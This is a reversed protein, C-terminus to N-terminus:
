SFLLKKLRRDHIGDSKHDLQSKPELVSINGKSHVLSVQCIGCFTDFCMVPFNANLVICICVKLFDLSGKEQRWVIPRFLFQLLSFLSSGLLWSHYHFKKKALTSYQMLNRFQGWSGEGRGLFGVTLIFPGCIKRLDTERINNYLKYSTSNCFLKTPVDLNKREPDCLYDCQVVQLLCLQIIWFASFSYRIISIM